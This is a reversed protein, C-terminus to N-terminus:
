NSGGDEPWVSRRSWWFGGILPVIVLTAMGFLLGASPITRERILVVTFIGLCAIKLFAWYSAQILLPVRKERPAGLYEFIARVARALAVLDVLCLLGLGVM